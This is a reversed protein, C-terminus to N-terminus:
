RRRRTRGGRAFTTPDVGRITHGNADTLPVMQHSNHIPREDEPQVGMDHSFQEPDAQPAGADGTSPAGKLRQALASLGASAGGLMATDGAYRAVTPPRTPTLLEMLRQLTPAEKAVKSAPMPTALMAAADELHEPLSQAEGVGTVQQVRKDLAALRTAADTSWQPTALPTAMADREWPQARALTQASPTGNIANAAPILSAPLSAFSDQLAIPNGGSASRTGGFVPNGQNDLGYFQKAIGVGLRQVHPGGYRALFRSIKALSGDDDVAGGAAMTPEQNNSLLADIDAATAKKFPNANPDPAQARMKFRDLTSLDTPIAQVTHGPLQQNLGNAVSLAAGKYDYPTGGHVGGGPKVVAWQYNGGDTPPNPILSTELRDLADDRPVSRGTATYKEVAPAASKEVTAAEEPAAKLLRMLKGVVSGGNGYAQVRMAAARVPDFPVVTGGAAHGENAETMAEDEVVSADSDPSAASGLAAAGALTFLPVGAKKVRDAVEPTIHMAPFTKAQAGSQQLGENWINHLHGFAEELSRAGARPEGNSLQENLDILSNEADILHNNASPSDLNNRYDELLKGARMTYDHMDSSRSLLDEPNEEGYEVLTNPRTDEIGGKVNVPVDTVEAGYQKALKRLASPYITDYIHSMGEGKGGGMGQEYRQIQDAGRTLALYQDGQNVSNLLQKRLELGAYDAPDKFPTDPPKQQAWHAQTINVTPDRPNSLLATDEPTRYGRRTMASQELAQIQDRVDSDKPSTNPRVQALLAQRQAQQDPTPFFGKEAAAEHRDSQIEEILRTLPSGPLDAQHRTTRSWSLDQPSFHSPFSGFDPSTTVSEEYGGPVGPTHAYEGYSADTINPRGGTSDRRNVDYLEGPPFRGQATDPGSVGVRQSFKPRYQHLYALLTDRNLPATGQAPNTQMNSLLEPLGSYQLEEKKLPFMVGERQLALGPKLYNQWQQAPMREQPAARILEDLTSFMGLQPLKNKLYQLVPDFASAKPM